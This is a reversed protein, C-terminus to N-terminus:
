RQDLLQAEQDAASPGPAIGQLLAAHAQKRKWALWGLRGLWLAWMLAIVIARALVGGLPRSVQGAADAGFALLPGLWWVIASLALVALSGLVAPSLLVNFVRKM